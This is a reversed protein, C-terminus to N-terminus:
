LSSRKLANVVLSLYLEGIDLGAAEVAQPFLSTETMGPAMNVELFWVGGKDDIILDSRSIDRLGLRNHADLAVETARRTIEDSIRAPVFFETVGATYRSDYSYTGSDPVIEVAPLARPGTGDDIISIAIETGMIGEEILADNGYAFCSIMAEPLEGVEKVFTAGLSSGGKTPKVMLPMGFKKSIADLLAIAGLERFTSHPLVVGRPTLTTASSVIGKAVPKNFARRCASPRSGVYPLDVLELIDRVSGDEGAAGHLTPFLVVGPEKALDQLTNLLSSDPDIEIVEVGIDRLALAVRRGSRLSVDREHSLGGALVVVKSLDTM